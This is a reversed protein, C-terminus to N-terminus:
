KATQERDAIVKKIAEPRYMPRSRVMVFPLHGAKRENYVTKQSCSLLEAAEAETVLIKEQANM